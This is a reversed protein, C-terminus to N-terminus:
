RQPCRPSEDRSQHDPAIDLLDEVKTVFADPEEEFSCGRDCSEDM